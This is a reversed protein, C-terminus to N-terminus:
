TATCSVTRRSVHQLSSSRGAACSCDFIYLAAASASLGPVPRGIGQYGSVRGQAVATSTCIWWSAFSEATPPLFPPPSLLPSPPAAAGGRGPTSPPRPTRLSGRHPVIAPGVGSPRPAVGRAVSHGSPRLAAGCLLPSRAARAWPAGAVCRSASASAYRYRGAKRRSSPCRDPPDRLGWLTPSQSAGGELIPSQLRNTRPGREGRAGGCRRESRIRLARVRSQHRPHCSLPCELLGIMSNFIRKVHTVCTRFM